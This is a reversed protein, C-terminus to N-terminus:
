QLIKRKGVSFSFNALLTSTKTDVHKVPQMNISCYHPYAQIWTLNNLGHSLFDNEIMEQPKNKLTLVTRTKIMSM